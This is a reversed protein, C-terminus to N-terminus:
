FLEYKEVGVAALVLIILKVQALSAPWTSPALELNVQQPLNLEASQKM